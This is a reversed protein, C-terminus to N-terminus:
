LDLSGKTSVVGDISEDIAIAQRLARALAKIAAEAIHHSNAGALQRIHLTVGANFSFARIFEDLLCSDFDGIQAQPFNFDSVYFPRGSLDLSVQVLAEDMPVFATGYRSIGLGSELCKNVARGLCIGIDEVTHHGDVELDGDCSLDLNFRGHHAFATLMHDFFGIGSDVKVEGRGDLELRLTIDTERTTRTITASRQSSSM